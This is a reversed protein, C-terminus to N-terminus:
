KRILYYKREYNDEIYQYGPEKESQYFDFREPFLSATKKFLSIRTDKGTIRIWIEDNGKTPPLNSYEPYSFDVYEYGNSEIYQELKKEIPFMVGIKKIDAYNGKEVLFFLVAFVLLIIYM